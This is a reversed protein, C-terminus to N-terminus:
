RGAGGRYGSPSVGYRDLFAKRLAEPTGFGCRAAVSAVPLSSSLLLHRMTSKTDSSTGSMDDAGDDSKCGVAVFMVGSLIVVLLKSM